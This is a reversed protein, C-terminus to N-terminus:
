SKKSLKAVEDAEIQMIRVMGAFDADSVEDLQRPTM